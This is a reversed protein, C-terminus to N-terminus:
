GDGGSTRLSDIPKEASSKPLCNKSKSLYKSLYRAASRKVRQLNELASKTFGSHGIVSSIASAWAKRIQKPTVIWPSRRGNKGRFVIHLHPVYEGRTIARKTQIETCYVYELQMGHLESRRRLYRLIRDIMEDWQQCCLTLDAESLAPLTLTLFSLNDKSYDYELLYCAQRINRAMSTTMKELRKRSPKPAIDSSEVRQHVLPTLEGRAVMRGIPENMLVDALVFDGDEYSYHHGNVDDCLYTYTGGRQNVFQKGPICLHSDDDPHDAIYSLYGDRCERTLPEHRCEKHKREKRRRSTDVGPFISRRSLITTCYDYTLKRWVGYLNWSMPTHNKSYPKKQEHSKNGNGHRM